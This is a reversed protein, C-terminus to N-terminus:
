KEVEGGSDAWDKFGGPNYVRKGAILSVQNEATCSDAKPVLCVDRAHLDMDAKPTFRVDTEVRGTRARL